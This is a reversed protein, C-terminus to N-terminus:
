ITWVKPEFYKTYEVMSYCGSTYETITKDIQHINATYQTLCHHGHIFFGLVQLFYEVYLVCSNSKKTTYRRTGTILIVHGYSSLSM